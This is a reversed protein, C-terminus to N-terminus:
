EDGVSVNETKNEIVNETVPDVSLKDEVESGTQDEPLKKDYGDGSQQARNQIQAPISPGEEVEDIRLTLYRLIDENLRMQREMEHVAASQAEINLLVYHGKRNKKIKYALSRLGWYERKRVKGANEEIIGELLEALSEVQQSTAEQRVIIVSEYLSM